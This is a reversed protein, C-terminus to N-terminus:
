NNITLPHKMNSAVFLKDCFEKINHLVIVCKQSFIVQLLQEVIFSRRESVQLAEAWESFSNVFILLLRVGNVYTYDM